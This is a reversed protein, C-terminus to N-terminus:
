NCGRCGRGPQDSSGTQNQSMTPGLWTVSGQWNKVVGTDHFILRERIELPGEIKWVPGAHHAVCGRGDRSKLEGTALRLGGRM